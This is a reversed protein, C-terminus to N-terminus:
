RHFMIGKDLFINRATNRDSENNRSYVSSYYRVILSNKVNNDCIEIEKLAYESIIKCLEITFHPMTEYTRITLNDISLSDILVENQKAKGCRSLINLLSYCYKM